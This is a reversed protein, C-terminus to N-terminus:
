LFGWKVDFIGADYDGNSLYGFLGGSLDINGDNCSPCEDAITPFAIRETKSNWVWIKQGCKSQDYQASNVAVVYEDDHIGWGCAGNGNAAYFTAIGQSQDRKEFSPAATVVSIAALTAVIAKAFM